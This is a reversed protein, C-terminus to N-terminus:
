FSPRFLYLVILCFALATAIQFTAELYKLMEGERSSPQKFIHETKM